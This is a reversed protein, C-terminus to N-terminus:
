ENEGGIYNFPLAFAYLCQSVGKLESHMEKKLVGVPEIESLVITGPRFMLVPYKFPTESCAWSGGLRPYKVFADYYIKNTDDAAPLYNSLLLWGNVKDPVPLFIKEIKIEFHGKGTYKNKGFGNLSIFGFYEKLKEEPFYDTSIFSEFIGKEYFTTEEDYLNAGEKATTGSLRNITNHTITEQETREIAVKLIKQNEEKFIHEPKTKDTVKAWVDMYLSGLSFSNHHDFWYESSLWKAKKLKKKTQAFGYEDEPKDRYGFINKLQQLNTSSFPLTIPFPLYGEPFASSLKLVPEKEMTELFKELIEEGDIFRIAWCLHGFITDSELKTEIAGKLLWKIRYTTM